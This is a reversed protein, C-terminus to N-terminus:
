RERLSVLVRLGTGRLAGARTREWALSDAGSKFTIMPRDNLRDSLQVPPPGGEPAQAWANSTLCAVACLTAAVVRITTAGPGSAALGAVGPPTVPQRTLTMLPHHRRPDISGM